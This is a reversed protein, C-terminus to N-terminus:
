VREIPKVDVFVSKAESCAQAVRRSLDGDSPGVVVEVRWDGERGKCSIAVQIRGAYQVTAKLRDLYTGSTSPTELSQHSLLVMADPFGMLAQGLRPTWMQSLTSLHCARVVDVGLQSALWSNLDDYKDPKSSSLGTISNLRETLQASWTDGLNM